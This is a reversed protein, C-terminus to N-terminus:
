HGVDPRGHASGEIPIQTRRAVGTFSYGKEAAIRRPVQGTISSIVARKSM